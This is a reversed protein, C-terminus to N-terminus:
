PNNWITTITDVLTDAFETADADAQPSNPRGLHLPPQATLYATVLGSALAEPTTAHLRDILTRTHVRSTENDGLITQLEHGVAAAAKLTTPNWPTTICRRDHSAALHGYRAAVDAHRGTGLAAPVAATIYPIPTVWEYTHTDAWDELEDVRYFTHTDPLIGHARIRMWDDFATAASRDEITRNFADCEDAYTDHREPTWHLAWWEPDAYGEPRTQDAMSPSPRQKDPVALCETM